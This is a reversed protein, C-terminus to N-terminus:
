QIFYWPDPLPSPACEVPFSPGAGSQDDKQAHSDPISCTQTQPSGAETIANSSDANKQLNDIESKKLPMKFTEGSGAQKLKDYKSKLEKSREIFRELGLRFLMDFYEKETTTLQTLVRTGSFTREILKELTSDTKRHKLYVVGKNDWSIEKPHHELALVLRISKTRWRGKIDAFMNNLDFGSPGPLLEKIDKIGKEGDGSNSEPDIDNTLEAAAM